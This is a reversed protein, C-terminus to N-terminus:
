ARDGIKLGIRNCVEDCILRRFLANSLEHMDELRGVVFATQQDEDDIGGIRFHDQIGTMIAISRSMFDNGPLQVDVADVNIQILRREVSDSDVFMGTHSHWMNPEEFVHPAILPSGVRLLEETKAEKAKGAHTFRDRYELRISQVSTSDLLVSLIPQLLENARETFQKWREYRRSRFVLSQRDVALEEVAVTQVTGLHNTEIETRKFSIGMTPTSEVRPSGGPQVNFQLGAIADRQTLKVRATVGDAARLAKRLLADTLPETFTLAAAVIEIAHAERHPQWNEAM